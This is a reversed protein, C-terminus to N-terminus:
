NLNDIEELGEFSYRGRSIIPPKLIKSVDTCRISKEEPVIPFVFKGATKKRLFSVSLDKDDHIEIVQAVFHQHSKKGQLKCLIFNEPLPSCEEMEENKSLSGYVQTYIEELTSQHENNNNSTVAKNGVPIIEASVTFNKTLSFYFLYFYCHM